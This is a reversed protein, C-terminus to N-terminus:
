RDYWEWFQYTLSLKRLAEKIKWVRDGAQYVGSHDFAANTAEYGEYSGNEGVETTNSM